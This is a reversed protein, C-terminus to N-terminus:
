GPLGRHSGVRRDLYQPALEIPEGCIPLYIDVDPYSPPHWAAIRAQHATLDFGRGAFNVPLSIAQYVVYTATFLLFPSLALDQTEFRVQSFILCCSGILIVTTLYPLNRDIYSYKEDDDPPHPPM